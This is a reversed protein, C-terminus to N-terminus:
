DKMLVDLVNRGTWLQFLLKARVLTTQRKGIANWRSSHSSGPASSLDLIVGGFPERLIQHLPNHKAEQEDVRCIIALKYKSAQSSFDLGPFDAALTQCLKSELLYVAKYGMREATFCAARAKNIDDGIIAISSAAASVEIGAEMICDHIVRWSINQGVFASKEASEPRNRVISDVFGVKQADDSAIEAISEYRYRQFGTAADGGLNEGKVDKPEDDELAQCLHPLGLEQFGPRIMEVIAKADPGSLSFDLAPVQGILHQAQHVEALTLQGPASPTPLLKHIVFLIPSLIRSLQGHQGMGVALVPKPSQAQQNRVFLALEHCDYMDASLISLKIIDGFVDAAEYKKQLTDSTWRIGGTWDHFSAVLKSSGKKANLTKILDQSWEIKVDIYTIYEAVAM